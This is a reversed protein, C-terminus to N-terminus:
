QVAAGLLVKAKKATRRKSNLEEMNDQRIVMRLACIFDRNEAYRARNQAKIKEKNQQYRIADQVAYKEKHKQYHM